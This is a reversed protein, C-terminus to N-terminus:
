GNIIIIISQLDQLSIKGSAFAYILIVTSISVGARKWDIQGADTNEDSYVLNSVTGGTFADGVGVLIKGFITKKFPKKEQNM